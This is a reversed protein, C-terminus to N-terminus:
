TSVPSKSICHDFNESYNSSRETEHFEECLVIVCIMVCWRQQICIRSIKNSVYNEKIKLSTDKQNILYAMSTTVEAMRFNNVQACKLFRWKFTDDDDYEVSKALFTAFNSYFIYESNRLIQFPAGKGNLGPAYTKSFFSLSM